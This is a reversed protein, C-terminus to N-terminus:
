RWRTRARPRRRLGAVDAVGTVVRMWWTSVTALALGAAVSLWAVVPHRVADGSFAVVAVMWGWALWRAIGIVRLITVGTPFSRTLEM